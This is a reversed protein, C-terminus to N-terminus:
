AGKGIAPMMSEDSFDRRIATVPHRAEDSAALFNLITAIIQFEMAPSANSLFTPPRATEIAGVVERSRLDRDDGAVTTVM